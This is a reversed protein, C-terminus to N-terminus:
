NPLLDDRGKQHYHRKRDEYWRPSRLNGARVVLQPSTPIVGVGYGYHSMEENEFDAFCSDVAGSRFLSDAVM